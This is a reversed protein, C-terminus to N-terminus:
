TLRHDPGGDTYLFLVTKNGIRTILKSHLETAHRLPSSGQYVADKIGAFVQGTYWSGEFQEPITVELAVSPIVSFRTFDHDGVFRIQM